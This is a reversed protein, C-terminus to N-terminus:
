NKRREYRFVASGPRDRIEVPLGKEMLEQGTMPKTGPVDLNALEYQSSPDLGHLRFRAAEFPSDPRRFVQVLGDGHEPRNFQWAVWTDTRTSYGVLPYYDGYYYEAIQRWQSCLRRLGDYDLDKGRVDLQLVAAPCMESRFSYPDVRNIGTGFYPIWLAMGYTINQMATREYVYDSRWLPVARRLTELDNRRGGSACSDILLNPYRRRLEDWYALYGTVHRIETIGQRDEQDNARWISLPDFNFDQRYLDIGQEKLLGGIHEVLWHWAEQNGLYLLKSAGERGLLWDPHKEYLWTGPTVREPEFWVISKLGKSHVYDTVARLGQPFRKLDPEWTGV